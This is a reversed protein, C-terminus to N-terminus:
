LPNYRTREQTHTAKYELYCKQIRRRILAHGTISLHPSCIRNKYDRSAPWLIVSCSDCVYKMVFEESDYEYKGLPIFM